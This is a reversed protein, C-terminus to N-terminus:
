PVGLQRYATWTSVAGKGSASRPDCRFVIYGLNAKAEDPGRGGMGGDRITPAHPGGYTTFWVPYKKEPDFNAPTHVSAELLFGDPTPIQMREVKGLKVKDQAYVPNTDLVRVLSGDNRYLRVQTPSDPGSHYDIFMDAKPNFRVDHEGRG